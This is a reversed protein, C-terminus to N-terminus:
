CVSCQEFEVQQSKDILDFVASEMAQTSYCIHQKSPLRDACIVVLTNKCASKCGEEKMFQSPLAVISLYPADSPTSDPLRFAVPHIHVARQLSYRM